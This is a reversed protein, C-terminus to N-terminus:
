EGGHELLFSLGRKALSLDIAGPAHSLTEYGWPRLVPTESSIVIRYRKTADAPPAEGDALAIVTGDAARYQVEYELPAEFLQMPVKAPYGM